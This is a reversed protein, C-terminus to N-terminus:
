WPTLHLDIERRSETCRAEAYACREFGTATAELDFHEDSYQLNAPHCINLTEIYSISYRGEADTQVQAFETTGGKFGWWYKLTVTAGAM